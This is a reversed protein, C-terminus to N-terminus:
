TSLIKFLIVLWNHFSFYTLSLLKLYFMRFSGNNHYFCFMLNLIQSLCCFSCTLYRQSISCCRFSHFLEQSYLKFHINRFRILVIPPPSMPGIWKVHFLSAGHLTPYGHTGGNHAVPLNIGLAVHRQHSNRDSNQWGVSRLFAARDSSIFCNEIVTAQASTKWIKYSSQSISNPLIRGFRM